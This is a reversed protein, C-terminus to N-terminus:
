KLELYSYKDDVTIKYSCNVRLELTLCSVLTEPLGDVTCVCYLMTGSGVIICQMMVTDGERVSYTVPFIARGVNYSAGGVPWAQEVLGYKAANQATLLM